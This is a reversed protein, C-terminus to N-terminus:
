VRERCSARGIEQGLASDALDILADLQGTRDDVSRYQALARGFFNRAEAYRNDQHAQMGLLMASRVNMVVAPQRVPRSGCAALQLALLVGIFVPLYSHGDRGRNRFSRPPSWREWMRINTKDIM